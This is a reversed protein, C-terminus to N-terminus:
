GGLAPKVLPDRLVNFLVEVPRQFLLLAVDSQGHGHELAPERAAGVRHGGRQLVTKLSQLAELFLRDLVAVAKTLVFLGYLVQLIEGLLLAPPYLLLEQLKGQGSVKGLELGLDGLELSQCPFGAKQGLELVVGLELLEKPNEFAETAFLQENEGLVAVGEAEQHAYESTLAIRHGRDLAAHPEFVADFALSLEPVLGLDHDSGLGRTLPNVKLEARHHHVVVEGPVGGAQFLAHPRM